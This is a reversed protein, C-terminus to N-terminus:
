KNEFQFMGEVNLRVTTFKEVEDQFETINDLPEPEGRDPSM